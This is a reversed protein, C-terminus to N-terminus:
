RIRPVLKEEFKGHCAPTLVDYSVVGRIERPGLPESDPHDRGSCEKAEYTVRMLVILRFRGSEM